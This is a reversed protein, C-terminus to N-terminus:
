EVNLIKGTANFYSATLHYIDPASYQEMLRDVDAEKVNEFEGNRYATEIAEADSEFSEPSMWSQYEVSNRREEAKDIAHGARRYNDVIHRVIKETSPKM